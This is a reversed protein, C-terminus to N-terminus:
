GRRDLKPLGTAARIQEVLPDHTLYPQQARGLQLVQGTKLYVVPRYSAGQVTFEQMGVGAIDSFAHETRTQDWDFRRSVHHTMRRKEINFTTTIRAKLMGYLCFAASLASFTAIFKRWAGMLGFLALLTIATFMICGALAYWRMSQGLAPAITLQRDTRETPRSPDEVM